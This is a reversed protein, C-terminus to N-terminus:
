RSRLSHLVIFFSREGQVSGRAVRALVDAGPPIKSFLKEFDELNKVAVRIPATREGPARYTLERITMGPRLGDQYARSGAEVERILVGEPSGLQNKKMLEPTLNELQMGYSKSEPGEQGEPSAAPPKPRSEDPLVALTVSLKQRRGNRVVEVDVAKGPPTWGVLRQLHATDLIRKGDLTVIVDGVAIGSKMAPGDPLLSGVLAGEPRPLGLLHAMDDAVPQITVGLYGRPFTGMRRLYAVVERAMNIPIAFGIGSGPSPIATNIGIVEGDVNVLPGGSNGRNIAADTQIFNEYRAVGVGTRGIGSVVGVTFTRTIGFPDGVAIAWHGVRVKESDGLKAVPIQGDPDIKIVALDTYRDTGVVKARYSANDALRVRLYNSDAVVHNNTLIYGEPDIIVGSGSSFRPVDPHPAPAGREEQPVGRAAARREARISVVTPKVREAVSAFVTEIQRLLSVDPAPPSSAGALFPALLVSVLLTRHSM